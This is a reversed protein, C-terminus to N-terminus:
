IPFIFLIKDHLLPRHPLHYIPRFCTMSYVHLTCIQRAFISWNHWTFFHLIAHATTSLVMWVMNMINWYYVRYSSTYGALCIWAYPVLWWRIQMGIRDNKHLLFLEKKDNKVVNQTMTSQVYITSKFSHFMNRLYKNKSTIFMRM